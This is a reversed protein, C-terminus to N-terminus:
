PLNKTQFKHPLPPRPPYKTRPIADQLDRNISVAEQMTTPRYAKVLGKLPEVLGETFLLILRAKSIDIVMVALRQFEFIYAELTGVQKFHAM